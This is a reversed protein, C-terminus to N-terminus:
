KNEIGWKKQLFKLYFVLLLLLDQPYLRLLDSSELPLSAAATVARDDRQFLLLYFWTHLM